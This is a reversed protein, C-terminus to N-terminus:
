DFLGAPVPTDAGHPPEVRLCRALVAAVAQPTVAEDRRGPRVGPGCILLPVHTDYPHPSGHTSGRTKADGSLHYPKLVVAVDGSRAPHFSRRFREGVEDGDFPGAALRTRTYTAQVGPQRAYWLALAEEARAQEVHNAELTRRDLYLWPGWRARLWRGPAGASLTKALFAEAADYLGETDVRGADLGKGRAVGPLPCVGHDACVAVVYRDRGVKADLHDLLDRVILDSRLTMDLVEQSDPGYCHGVVDNASFSLCLLDPAAGGGLKEADIARRALELLLENGYPSDEVAEYYSKGPASVGGRMAHPFTRGQDWGTDEEPVDDPGSHAAYDLDPRLREWDKGFWRDAPRGANFAAVWPHPEARYYTSTVFSGTPPFFWYCADAEAARCSMLVASRPKLSLSVVRGRGATAGKLADGLTDARLQKPSTGPWDGVEERQKGTPQPVLKYDSDFVCDVEKGSVPRHWGNDVIGHTRPSCGTVLSAHGPATFTQAYPIHCNTFWAGEKELRHFGGEGFLGDWRTLYDGRMQDFVVLVALRPADPDDARAAYPAAEVPPEPPDRLEEAGADAPGRRFADTTFAVVGVAALTLAACCCYALKLRSRDWTSM